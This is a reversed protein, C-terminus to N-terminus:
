KLEGKKWMVYGYLAILAVAVPILTLGCWYDWIDPMGQGLYGDWFSEKGFMVGVAVMVGVIACLIFVKVKSVKFVKTLFLWVALAIAFGAFAHKEKDEGPQYDQNWTSPDFPNKKPEQEQTAIIETM